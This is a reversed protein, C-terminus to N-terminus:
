LTTNHTTASPVPNARANYRLMIWGLLGGVFLTIVTIIVLVFNHLVIINSMRDDGAAQLGLEWPTPQGLAQAAAAVPLAFGLLLAFVGIKRIMVGGTCTRRPPRWDPFRRWRNHQWPNLRCRSSLDNRGSAVCRRQTHIVALGVAGIYSNGGRRAQVM